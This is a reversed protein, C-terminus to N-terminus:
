KATFTVIVHTGAAPMSTSPLFTMEEKYEYAANSMIGAPCSQMCMVCGTGFNLNNELNGGFRMDMDRAEGAEILDNFPMHTNGIQVMVDYASGEIIGGDDEVAINNGDEGGIEKLADYMTQTDVDTLFFAAGANSGDKNVIAHITSEADYGTAVANLQITKRDPNVVIPDDGVNLCFVVETGAAPMDASATFTVPEQYQYASDSIIGLSCSETCFICGTAFETNLEINGGFRPAADRVESAEVLDYVGYEQGDTQITIDIPTGMVTGDADDLAINNGPVAGLAVLADYVELTTVQTTFYAKEANSGNVFALYHISSEANYGTAVAPILITKSAEDIEIGDPIDSEAAESAAESAEEAPVSSAAEAGSAEQSAQSAAADSSASQTAAPAQSSSCATFLMCGLIMALLKVMTKKKM